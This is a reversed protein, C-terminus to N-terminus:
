EEESGKKRSILSYIGLAGYLAVPPIFYKFIGHQISEAMDPLPENDLMPLGLKEFPVASLYLVSTGGAEKEGYIHNVYVDPHESIRRKAEKLLDSRKGFIIAGTPCVRACEPEGGKALQDKCFDCKSIVPFPKDYEFTPVDFPCAIMCYRCGICKSKDYTVIGNPHKQLASVPCASVCAPDDCHMCQRKVFSRSDKESYLKIVTNNKANLELPMDYKPDAGERPYKHYTKCASQCGRCGICKTCDNLMSFEDSLDPKESSAKLSQSSGLVTAGTFASIKLFDRRNISM